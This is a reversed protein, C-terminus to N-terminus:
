AGITVTAETARSRNCSNAGASGRRAWRSRGSRGTSASRSSASAWRSTPRPTTARPLPRPGRARRRRGVRHRGPRPRSLAGGRLAEVAPELEEPRDPFGRALADAYQAVLRLTRRRGTGAILLPTQRVRRRTCAELRRQIVPMSEGSRRCDRAARRASSTATSTTTASRGARGSALSSGAAASGTSPGRWTPSRPRSQPVLHVDRAPRDRDRPRRPGAALLTWCELHPGDRDGYLPFFHDWTYAIDYGM